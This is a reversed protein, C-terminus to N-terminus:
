GVGPQQQGRKPPPKRPPGKEGHQTQSGGKGGANPNDTTGPPRGTTPNPNNRGGGGGSGGGVLIPPLGFGGVNIIPASPGAPNRATRAIADNSPLPPFGVILPHKNMLDNVDFNVPMPLTTAGAPVDLMQGGGVDRSEARAKRLSVRASGELLYLKSRGGRSSELILTTGTVAVSVASGRVNAGGSDKPVRLLISGGGLDVSRGARNYSYISNAGLRTITLDAFTLESKSKDGTRVATDERVLDNMAAAHPKSEKPLLNVERIIQTVRAESGAAEGTLGAAVSVIAVIVGAARASM